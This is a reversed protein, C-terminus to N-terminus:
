FIIGVVGCCILLAGVSAVALFENSNFVREMFVEMKPFHRQDTILMIHM